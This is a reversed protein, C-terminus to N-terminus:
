ARKASSIWYFFRSIMSKKQQASYINFYFSDLYVRDRKFSYYNCLFTERQARTDALLAVIIIFQNNAIRFTYLVRPPPPPPTQTAAFPSYVDCGHARRWWRRRRCLGGFVLVVVVTQWRAGGGNVTEGAGGGGGGVAGSVVHMRRQRDAITLVLTDLSQYVVPFTGVHVHRQTPGVAPLRDSIRKACAYCLACQRRAFFAPWLRTDGIGAAGRTM